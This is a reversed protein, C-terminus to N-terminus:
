KSPPFKEFDLFKFRIKIIELKFKYCTNKTSPTQISDFIPSSRASWSFLVDKKNKGIRKGAVVLLYQINLIKDRKCTTEYENEFNPSSVSQICGSTKKALNCASAARRRARTSPDTKWSWSMIKDINQRVKGSQFRRLDSKWTQLHGHCWTGSTRWDLAANRNLWGFSGRVSRRGRHRRTNSGGQDHARRGAGKRLVSKTRFRFWISTAILIIM